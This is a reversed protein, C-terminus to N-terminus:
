RTMRYTGPVGSEVNGIRPAESIAAITRSTAMAMAAAWRSPTTCRSRFGEFMMTVGSLAGTTM